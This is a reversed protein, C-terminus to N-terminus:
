FRTNQFKDDVFDIIKCNGDLSGLDQAKSGMEDEAKM